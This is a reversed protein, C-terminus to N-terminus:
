TSTDTSSLRFFLGVRGRCRIRVLDERSNQADRVCGLAAFSDRSPKAGGASAQKDLNGGLAAFGRCFLLCERDGLEGGRRCQHPARFVLRDRWGKRSKIQTDRAHSLLLLLNELYSSLSARLFEAEPDLSIKLITALSEFIYCYANGAKHYHFLPRYPRWAGATNQTSFLAEVAKRVLDQEAVNSDYQADWKLITALSWILQDTDLSASGTSHLAVERGLTARAWLIMGYRMKSFHIEEYYVAARDPFRQRLGHLTELSWFTHFANPPYWTDRDEDPDAEGIAFRVPDKKLQEIIHDLHATIPEQFTQLNQIILPLARCRCYVSASGESKWSKADGRIALESFTRLANEAEPLPRACESLSSLCTATSSLHSLKDGLPKESPLIKFSVGDQFVKLSREHYACFKQLTRRQERLETFSLM